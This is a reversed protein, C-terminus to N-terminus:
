PDYSTCLDNDVKTDERKPDVFTKVLSIVALENTWSKKSCIQRREVDSTKVWIPSKQRLVLLTHEGSEGIVYAEIPKEFAIIELGELPAWPSLMVPAFLLSMLAPALLANQKWSGEVVKRESSRYRGAPRRSMIKVLLLVIWYLVIVIGSIIANFTTTTMIGFILIPGLLFGSRWSAAHGSSASNGLIWRRFDPNVVLYFLIYPILASLASILSSFLIKFYDAVSLVALARDVDFNTFAYVRLGAILVLLASCCFALNERVFRSIM